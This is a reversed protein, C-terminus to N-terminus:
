AEGIRRVTRDVYAEAEFYDGFAPIKTTEGVANRGIMFIHFPTGKTAVFNDIFPDGYHERMVQIDNITKAYKRFGYVSEYLQVLHNGEETDAVICVLKYADKLVYEKVAQAFGGKEYNSYLSVLWGTDTVSFGALGDETLYNAADAYDNEVPPATYDGKYLYKRNAIFVKRFTDAAVRLLGTKEWGLDIRGVSEGRVMAKIRNKAEEPIPKREYWYASTHEM